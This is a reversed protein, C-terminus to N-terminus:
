QATQQADLKGEFEHQPAPKSYYYGQAVHADIKRMLELRAKARTLQKEHTEHDTSERDSQVLTVGAQKTVAAERQAPVAVFSLEYADTPEDLVVTCLKGDYTEGRRHGCSGYDTGCVSCIAKSVACGVSVERLIGGCIASRRATTSEDALRYVSVRLRAVDTDKTVHADYIRATQGGASWAHDFIVTKGIFLESLKELAAPSFQEYDRDVQSDCANIDFVFVDEAELPSLTYRNILALDEPTAAKFAQSSGSKKVQTM